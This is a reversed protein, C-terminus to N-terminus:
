TLDIKLSHSMFCHEKIYDCLYEGGDTIIIYKNNLNEDESNAILYYHDNGSGDGHLDILGNLNSEDDENDEDYKNWNICENLRSYFKLNSKIKLQPNVYNIDFIYYNVIINENLLHNKLDNPMICNNNNEWHDIDHQSYKKDVRLFKNEYKYWKTGIMNTNGNILIYFNGYCILGNPSLLEFTSMNAVSPVLLEEPNCRCYETKLYKYLSIDLNLSEIAQKISM